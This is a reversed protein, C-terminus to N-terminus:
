LLTMEWFGDRPEWLERELYSGTRGIIKSSAWEHVCARKGIRIRGSVELPASQTGQGRMPLDPLPVEILSM